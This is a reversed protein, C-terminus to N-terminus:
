VAVGEDVEIVRCHCLAVALADAADPPQPVTSLNLTSAVMRQMQQKTARGNGTLSKKIKTAAYSYVPVGAQAAALFIVGRAHGMIIATRPHNYHAYLEEVAVGDPSFQALVASIDRAIEGLRESLSLRATSRVVGAEIVRYQGEGFDILGYGTTDLGPDIGLILM